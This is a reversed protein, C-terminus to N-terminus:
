DIAAADDDVLGAGMRRFEDLLQASTPSFEADTRMHEGPLATQWAGRDIGHKPAGAQSAEIPEFRPLGDDAVLTGSRALENVEVGLHESPDAWAAAM